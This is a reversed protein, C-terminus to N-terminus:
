KFLMMQHSVMRNCNKKFREIGVACIARSFGIVQSDIWAYRLAVTKGPHEDSEMYIIKETVSQFHSLNPLPKGINDKYVKIM